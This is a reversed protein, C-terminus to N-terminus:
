FTTKFAGTGERSRGTLDRSSGVCRGSGRALRNESRPAGVSRHEAQTSFPLSAPCARYSRFPDREGNRYVIKPDSGTDMATNSVLRVREHLIDPIVLLSKSFVTPKPCAPSRTGHYSFPIISSSTRVAHSKTPKTHARTHKKFRHRSAPRRLWRPKMIETRFSDNATLVYDNLRRQENHQDNV